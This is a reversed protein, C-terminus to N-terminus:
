PATPSRSSLRSRATSAPRSARTSPSRPSSSSCESWASRWARLSTGSLVSSWSRGAPLVVQFQSIPPSSKGRGKGSLIPRSRWCVSASSSSCRWVARLPWCSPAPTAPARRPARRVAPRSSTRRRPSCFISWPRVSRARAIRGSRRQTPARSCSHASCCGCASPPSGSWWRGSCLFAAPVTQSSASLARNTPAGTAATAPWPLRLARSSFTCCATSPTGWGPWPTCYAATRLPGRSKQRQTSKCLSISRRAAASTVSETM